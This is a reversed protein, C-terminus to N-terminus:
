PIILLDLLRITLRRLLYFGTGAEDPDIEGLIDHGDIRQGSEVSFVM